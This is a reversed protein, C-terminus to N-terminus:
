PEPPESQWPLSWLERNRLKTAITAAIADLLREGKEPSAAEPHGIVGASSMSGLSRWRHVGAGVLDKVEPTRNAAAVLAIREQAVLEPRLAMMMATEAECAHRLATQQELIEAIPEAAAHWYTFQIIPVGLRPSLDDTITRLANDNGGHSNFLVIRKFGHRVLSRCIGEIVAAFAAADLTVTGGFSMHHESIGTWLMPLVLVPEHAAILRAARLALAEGLVSDVEVPLHPGHQELSGVPVIVIANRRAQERLQDARLKRWEVEVDAHVPM